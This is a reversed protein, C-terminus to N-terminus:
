VNVNAMQAAGYRDGAAVGVPAVEEIAALDERSLGVEV